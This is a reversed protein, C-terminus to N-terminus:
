TNIFKVNKMVNSAIFTVDQFDGVTIALSHKYFFQQASVYM